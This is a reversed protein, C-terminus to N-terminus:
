AQEKLLLSVLKDIPLSFQEETLEKISLWRFAQAEDIHEKFDFPTSTTKLNFSNGEKVIYYISIIQHSPNYASQQFFDTTYFHRVVEIDNNTEERFERKLCDIIGEGFELGGGPFKTIYHGKIIEDSILVQNFDNILLGYVRINFRSIQM